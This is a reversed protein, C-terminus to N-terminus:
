TLVWAGMETIREARRYDELLVPIFPNMRIRVLVMQSDYGAAGFRVERLM